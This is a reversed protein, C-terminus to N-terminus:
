PQQFLTSIDHGRQQLLQAAKARVLMVRDCDLLLQTQETLEAPTLPRSRRDNSLEDLRDVSADAVHLAAAEWLKDDSLTDLQDLAQQLSEPLLSQSPVAMAVVHVLEEQMTRKSQEARTRLHDYLLDPLQVTLPPSAM